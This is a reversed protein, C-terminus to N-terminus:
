FDIEYELYRRAENKAESKVTTNGVFKMGKLIADIKVADNEKIGSSNSLKLMFKQHTLPAMEDMRMSVLTQISPDRLLYKLKPKIPEHGACDMEAAIEITSYKKELMEHKGEGSAFGSANVNGQSHKEAFSSQEEIYTVRFHKAGLDQAIRQLESIREMKLYSFYDDLAIYRDRDSPDVYYFESRNDPYFSLGFVDVSDRFINLVRIGKINTFYGISGKCVDSEARKKDRDAVRIFKHILFDGCDIDTPFIPQLKKLEIQKAKEDASEKIANAVKQVDERDFKGDDNQDVIRTIAKKTKNLLRSTKKEAKAIKDAIDIKEKEMACDKEKKIIYKVANMYVGQKYKIM